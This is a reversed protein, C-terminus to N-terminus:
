WWPIVATADRDLRRERNGGEDRDRDETDTPQRRDRHLHATDVRGPFRGPERSAAVITGGDIRGPTGSGVAGRDLHPAVAPPDHGPDPDGGRQEGADRHPRLRHSCGFRAGSSRPAAVTNATASITTSTPIM